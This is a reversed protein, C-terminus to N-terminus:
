YVTDREDVTGKIKAPNSVCPGDIAVFHNERKSGPGAGPWLSAHFMGSVFEM